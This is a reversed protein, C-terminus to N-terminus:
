VCRVLATGLLFLLPLQNTDFSNASNATATASALFVPCPTAERPSLQVWGVPRHERGAM